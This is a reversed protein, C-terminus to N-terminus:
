HAVLGQAVHAPMTEHGHYRRTFTATGHAISRLDVAYRTLELGPVEASVATRRAPTGSFSSRSAAISARASRM